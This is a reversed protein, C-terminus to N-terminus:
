ILFLSMEDPGPFRVYGLRDYANVQNVYNDDSYVTASGSNESNVGRLNALSKLSM